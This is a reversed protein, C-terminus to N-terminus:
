QSLLSRSRLTRRETLLGALNEGRVVALRRINHHQMLELAQNATQEIGVTVLPTSMVDKALTKALDKKANIVRNLVDKETIIGIPKRRALVVVAGVNNEVMVKAVESISDSPKVTSAPSRAVSELTVESLECAGEWMQNLMYSMREVFRLDNSYFTSEFYYLAELKEQDPFPTMFHFLHKVDVVTTRLYCSSVHRVSVHKSLKKAAKLNEGTIPAMIRTSVGRKSLEKVTRRNKWVRMLGKSSTLIAIEKEALSMTEDYKRHATEADKIVYTEPTPTGTEVEFIKEQIDVAGRWLEDFFANFSYVLTRSNTWLSVDGAESPLKDMERSIFLVIEEGDRIVLRPILKLGSNVSRAEYIFEAEKLLAKVADLYERSLETLVRFQIKSKLPHKFVADFLDRQSARVLGPVTSMVSLQHKTENVMQLIKSYIYNRGEIITFRASSDVTEEVEVSRWKSIAEDKNRQLRKVEEMRAKIFIDMAKELPIASFRAPRELTSTVIGKSELSKLSRHLQQRNLKLTNSMDRVRLPGKKALLLYVESDRRTMGLEMLTKIVTEQPL